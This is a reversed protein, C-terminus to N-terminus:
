AVPPPPRIAFKADLKVPLLAGADDVPADRNPVEVVVAGKEEPLLKVPVEAKEVDGEGEGAGRCDCGVPKPPDITFGKLGLLLKPVENASESGDRVECAVPMDNEVAFLEDPRVDEPVPLVRDLPGAKLGKRAEVIPDELM